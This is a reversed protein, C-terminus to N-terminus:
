NIKQKRKRTNPPPFVDEVRGTHSITFSLQLKPLIQM